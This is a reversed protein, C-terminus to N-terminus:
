SVTDELIILEIVFRLRQCVEVLRRARLGAPLVDRARLLRHDVVDARIPSVALLLVERAFPQALVTVPTLALGAGEPVVLRHLAADVPVDRVAWVRDRQGIVAGRGGGLGCTSHGDVGLHKM